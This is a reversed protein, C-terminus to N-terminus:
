LTNSLFTIDKGKLAHGANKVCVRIDGSFEGCQGCLVHGRDLKILDGIQYGERQHQFKCAICSWERRFLFGDEFEAGSRVRHCDYCPQFGYLKDPEGRWGDM